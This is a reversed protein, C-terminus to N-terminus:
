SEAVTEGDGDAAVATGDGTEEGAQEGAISLPSGDAVRMHGTRVVREGLELGRTVQAVGPNRLGVEVERREARGDADVVFVIYGERTAILAEEPVVLANRRENVTLVATAFTGPKLLAQPNDLRAKVLFDRTDERVSPSVFSTVAHFSREPYATVTLDVSQGREIRGSHREPLTFEIELADSRYLTALMAGAQVYDGEDVLAESIRGPFPARISADDLRERYLSVESQLRQVEARAARLDTVAQDRADETTVQREFLREVRAREREANDLRARAAELAAIRANLEDELKRTDLKFLLAGAEVQGGEEFPIETVTASIEPRLEVTQLARLTGIGRVTEALTQARVEAARVRVAPEEGSQAPAGGCGTLVALLLATIGGARRASPSTSNSMVVM